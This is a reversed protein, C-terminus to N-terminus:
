EQALVLGSPLEEGFIRGLAQEDRDSELLAPNTLRASVAAFTVAAKVGGVTVTLPLRPTSRVDRGTVM